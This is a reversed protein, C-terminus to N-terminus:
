TTEKKNDTIETSCCGTGPTPDYPTQRWTRQEVMHAKVLDLGALINGGRRERKGEGGERQAIRREKM